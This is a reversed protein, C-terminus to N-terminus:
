TKEQSRKLRQILLLVTAPVVLRACSLADSSADTACASVSKAPLRLASARVSRLCADQRELALREAKRVVSAADYHHREPKGAAGLAHVVQRQLLPQEVDV